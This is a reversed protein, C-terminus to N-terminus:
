EWSSPKVFRLLWMVEQAAESCTSSSPISGMRCAAKREASGVQSRPKLYVREAVVTAHHGEQLCGACDSLCQGASGWSCRGAVTRWLEAVGAAM